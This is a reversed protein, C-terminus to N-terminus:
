IARTIGDSCRNNRRPMEFAAYLRIQIDDANTTGLYPWKYMRWNKRPIGKLPIGVHFLRKHIEYNNMEKLRKQKHWKISINPAWFNTMSYTVFGVIIKNLSVIIQNGRMGGVALIYYKIFIYAPLPYSFILYFNTNVTFYDPMYRKRTHNKCIVYCFM